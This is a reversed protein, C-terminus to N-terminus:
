KWTPECVGGQWTGLSMRTLSVSVCNTISGHSPTIFFTVTGGSPSSVFGRGNFSVSTGQSSTIAQNLKGVTAIVNSGVATVNTSAAANTLIQYQTSASLSIGALEKNAYATSRAFQLDGYLQTIENEVDHKSKWTSYAPIGFSLLLAAISVVVMLEILTFGSQKRMKRDM